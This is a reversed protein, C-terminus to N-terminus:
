LPTASRLSKGCILNKKERWWKMFESHDTNVLFLFSSKSHLLVSSLSSGSQM